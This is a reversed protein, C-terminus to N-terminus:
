KGIKEAVAKLNESIEKLQVMESGIEIIFDAASNIENNVHDMEKSIEQIQRSIDQINAAMEEATASQEQAVAALDESRRTVNEVKEQIASLAGKVNNMDEMLSRVSEALSKSFEVTDKSSTTIEGLKKGIEETFKRTEVALKRIEDAVVAFGKGAEGARAAEIAANLALLNTQETIGTIMDLIENIASVSRELHNAKEKMTIAQDNVDKVKGVMEDITRMGESSSELIDNMNSSLETASDAVSVAANAVEQVNSDVSSVIDSTQSLRDTIGDTVVRISGAAKEMSDIAQSIESTARNLTKSQEKLSEIVGSLRDMFVNLNESLKGIEDKTTVKLRYGLDVEGRALKEVSNLVSKVPKMISSEYYLVSILVIVIGLIMFILQINKMLKVKAEAHDQFITVAKNMESLLPVNNERVYELAQEDKGHSVLVKEISNKFSGWMQIIKTLQGYIDQYRAPPLVIQKDPNDPDNIDIPAKGGDRLAKLTMDFTKVTNVIFKEYEIKGDAISLAEKTMKQTLMRQRGALNIVVADSKQLNTMWLTSVYIAVIFALIILLPILLKLRLSKM